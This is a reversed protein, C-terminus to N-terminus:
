VLRELIRSYNDPHLAMGTQQTIWAEVDERSRVEPAQERVIGWIRQRLEQSTPAQKAPPVPTEDPEGIDQTFVDSLCGTRLIADIQASKQAM